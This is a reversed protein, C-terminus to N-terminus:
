QVIFRVKRISGSAKISVWHLIDFFLVLLVPLVVLEDTFASILLVLPVEDMSIFVDEVVPVDVVPVAVVPEDVDPVVSAVVVEPEVADVEPVTVPEPAVVPVTVPEVASADIFPVAEADICVL